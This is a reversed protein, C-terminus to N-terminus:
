RMSAGGTVSVAQGTMYDAESSALFAAITAVDEPQGIRGLPNSETSTAIMEERYEETTMDAPKIGDAMGYLRETETLGPASRM